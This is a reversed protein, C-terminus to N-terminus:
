AFSQWLTQVLMTARRAHNARTPELLILTVEKIVISVHLVTATEWSIDELCAAMARQHVKVLALAFSVSEQQKKLRSFDRLAIRVTTM